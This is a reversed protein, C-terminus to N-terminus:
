RLQSCRFRIFRVIFFYMQFELSNFPLMDPEQLGTAAKSAFVKIGRIHTDKGNQHNSVVLIQILSAKLSGLDVPIWGNPENLELFQVQQM